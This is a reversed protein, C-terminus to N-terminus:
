CEEAGSLGACYDEFVRINAEHEGAKEAVGIFQLESGMNRRLTNL